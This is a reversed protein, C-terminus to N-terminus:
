ALNSATAREEALPDCSRAAILAADRDLYVVQGRYSSLREALSSQAVVVPAATDELIFRLREQPYAPDLPVYAGGAKLIGLLGVVMDLSREVCIGVRVEPGVGLGRLHRALQNSQRNLEAYTLVRGEFVVAVADPILAVQNQFFSHILGGASPARGADGGGQESRCSRTAGLEHEPASDPRCTTRM